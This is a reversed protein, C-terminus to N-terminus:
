VANVWTVKYPSPHPVTKLGIKPILSSSLANICSESDIIIKCNKDGINIWTHFITTRRWNVTDKPQGLICRVVAVLRISDLFEEHGTDDESDSGEYKIFMIKRQSEDQVEDSQDDLFLTRLKSPCFKKM